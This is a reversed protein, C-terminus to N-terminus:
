FENNFREQSLYTEAYLRATTRLSLWKNYKPISNLCVIKDTESLANWLKMVREKKGVKYNYLTWFREFSLDDPARDIKIKGKSMLAINPLNCEHISIREWVYTLQRLDLDAEIKECILFGRSDYTVLVRGSLETFTLVYIHNVVEGM